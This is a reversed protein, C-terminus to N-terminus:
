DHIVKEHICTSCTAVFAVGNEVLAFPFYTQTVKLNATFASVVEKTNSHCLTIDMRIQAAAARAIMAVTMM